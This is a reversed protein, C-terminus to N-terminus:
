TRQFIRGLCGFGYLLFLGYLFFLGHLFLLGHLFFLGYLFFLGFLGSVIYEPCSRNEGREFIRGACPKRCEAAFGRGPSKKYQEGTKRM